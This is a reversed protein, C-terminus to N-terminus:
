ILEKKPGTAPIPSSKELRLSKIDSIVAKERRFQSIVTGASNLQVSKLKMRRTRITISRTFTNLFNIM